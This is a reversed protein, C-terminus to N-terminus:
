SPLMKEHPKMQLLVTVLIGTILFAAVQQSARVNGVAKFHHVEEVAIHCIFQDPSVSRMCAALIPCPSTTSSSSTHGCGTLVLNNTQTHLNKKDTLSPRSLFHM